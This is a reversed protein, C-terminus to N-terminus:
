SQKITAYANALPRKAGFILTNGANMSVGTVVYFTVQERSLEGSETRLSTESIRGSANPVGTTFAPAKRVGAGGSIPFDKAESPKM